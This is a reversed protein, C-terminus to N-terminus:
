HTGSCDSAGANAHCGRVRRALQGTPGIGDHSHAHLAPWASPGPLAAVVSQISVPRRLDPDFSAAEPARQPLGTKLARDLMALWAVAGPNSEESMSRFRRIEAMLQGAASTQPTSAPTNKKIAELITRADLLESTDYAGAVNATGLTFLTGAVTALYPRCSNPKGGRKRVQGQTRLSSERNVHTAIALM